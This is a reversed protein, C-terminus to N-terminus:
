ENLVDNIDQLKTELNKIDIKISISANYFKREQDKQRALMEEIAKKEGVLINKVSDKMKEGITTVIKNTKVLRRELSRHAFLSQV